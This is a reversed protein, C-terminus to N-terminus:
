GGPEDSAEAAPRAEGGAASGGDGPAAASGGDGPAAASGGDGPAAAAQRAADVAAASGGVVSEGPAPPPWQDRYDPVIPLLVTFTSGRGKESQVSIEGQHAEVIQDVLSLGLGTGSIARTEVDGARFFREFVRDLDESAIGIGKDQVSIAIWERGERAVRLRVYRSDGSYKVANSLLNLVARVVADRDLDVPPLAGVPPLEVFLDFGRITASGRFLDIAEAVTDAVDEEAMVYTKEGKGADQRAFDLIDEILAQLRDSERVIHEAYEKRKEETRLRGLAMMEGYMRISTLPTKLEHTINSLFDAKMQALELERRVFRLTARAGLLATLLTLGIFSGYLLLRERQAAVLAEAPRVVRVVWTHLPDLRVEAVPDDGQRPAGDEGPSAEGGAYVLVQGRGDLVAVAAPGSEAQGIRFAGCAPGLVDSALRPLDLRLGVVLPGSRLNPDDPAGPIAPLVRYALVLPPEGWRTHHRLEGARAQGAERLLAPLLEEELEVLWDRQGVLLREDAALAAAEAQGDCGTLVARTAGLLAAWDEETVDPRHAGGLLSRGLALAAARAEDADGARRALEALRLASWPRIPQGREDRVPHSAERARRYARGAPELQGLRLHCEALRWAARAALTTTADPSASVREYGVCAAGLDGAKEREAAEEYSAAVEKRRALEAEDQVPPEGGADPEDGRGRFPLRPDPFITEGPPAVAFFDGALPHLARASDVAAALERGADRRRLLSQDLASLVEEEARVVEAELLRRAEQATSRAQELALYRLAAADNSSAVGALATLLVLPPLIMLAFLLLVRRRERRARLSAEGERPGQEDGETSTM